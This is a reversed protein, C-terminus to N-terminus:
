PSPAAATRRRHEQLSRLRQLTQAQHGMHALFQEFSLLHGVLGKLPLSASSSSNTCSRCVAPRPMWTYSSMSDPWTSLSMIASSISVSRAMGISQQRELHVGEFADLWADPDVVEPLAPLAPLHPFATRPAQNGCSLAQNPRQVNYHLMFLETAAKAQALDGPRDLALCEEQSTRHYREVFANQQPHHPDCVHMEIGLCAGLRLLASPFDSGAPSGVWRPDRDLTIREQCGYTQFTEALGELATKATFDTRVQADLLVSTGTDLVKLTEVVHQQKGQPDAPVSSVDKFDIQWNTM